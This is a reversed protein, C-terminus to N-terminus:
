RCISKLMSVQRQMERNENQLSKFSSVMKWIAKAFSIGKGILNFVSSVGFDMESILQSPAPTPCREKKKYGYRTQQM